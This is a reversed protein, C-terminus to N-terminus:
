LNTRTHASRHQKIKLMSKYDAHALNLGLQVFINKIIILNILFIIYIKLDPPTQVGQSVLAARLSPFDWMTSVLM